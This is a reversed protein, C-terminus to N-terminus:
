RDGDHSREKYLSGKKRPGKIEARSFTVYLSWEVRSDTYLAVKQEQILVALHELVYCWKM